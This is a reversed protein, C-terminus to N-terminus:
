WVNRYRGDRMIEHTGDPDTITVSAIAIKPQMAEIYVRDIHVVADPRSFDGPGIQGGFHDSRGFAIHLGLKEDLLIEGIPDIGFDDLVGLGLEAVNAYAPEAHIREREADSADGVTLVEVARNEAIRYVVVEDGFQVPMEGETLSADGAREGEYPVIYTEGSPLNGAIGNGPFLGGSAHGTRHRLDLALEHRKGGARFTVHAATARDVLAKLLDVRRNVEVYDIRLAPIMSAKFGPMTAARMAHNRAAVKLPATTSLETPALVISHTDFVSTFPTDCRGGVDEAHHRVLDDRVVCARAPLDANNGGVNPYWAIAVDDLGLDDARDALQRRWDVAMARRARWDDDDPKADDPLDVLIALGRDDATPQFVREILRVLEDASLSNPAPM